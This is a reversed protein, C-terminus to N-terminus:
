LCEHEICCMKSLTMLNMECYYLFDSSQLFKKNSNRIALLDEYLTHPSTEDRIVSSFGWDSVKIRVIEEFGLSASCFHKIFQQDAECLSSLPKQETKSHGKKKSFFGKFFHFSKGHKNPHSQHEIACAAALKGLNRECCKIQHPNLQDFYKDRLLVMKEYFEQLTKHTEPLSYELEESNIILLGDQQLFHDIKFSESCISNIFNLKLNSDSTISM